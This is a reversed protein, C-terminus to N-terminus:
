GVHAHRLSEIPRLRVVSRAIGAESRFCPAFVLGAGEEEAGGRPERAGGACGLRFVRRIRAAALREVDARRAEERAASGAEGTVPNGTVAEIGPQQAEAGIQQPRVVGEAGVAEVGHEGDDERAHLRDVTAVRHRLLLTPSATADADDRAGGEDDRPWPLGAGHEPLRHGGAHRRPRRRRLVRAGGVSQPRLERGSRPRSRRDRSLRPLSRRGRLPADLRRLAGRRPARRAFSPSPQAPPARSCCPPASSSPVPYSVCHEPEPSPIAREPGHAEDWRTWILAGRVDPSDGM